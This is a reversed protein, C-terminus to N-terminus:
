GDITLYALYHVYGDAPFTAAEQIQVLCVDLKPLVHHVNQSVLM